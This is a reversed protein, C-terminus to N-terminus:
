VLEDVLEGQVVIAQLAWRAAPVLKQRRHLGVPPLHAAPSPSFYRTFTTFCRNHFAPPTPYYLNTSRRSVRRSTTTPSKNSRRDSAPSANPTNMANSSRLRTCPMKKAIQNTGATAAEKPITRRSQTVKVIPASQKAM